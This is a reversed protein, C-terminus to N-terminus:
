LHKHWDTRPTEFSRRSITRWLRALPYCLISPLVLVLREKTYLFLIFGGIIITIFLIILIVSPLNDIPQTKAPTLNAKKFHQLYPFEVNELDDVEIKGRIYEQSAEWLKREREVAPMEKYKKKM